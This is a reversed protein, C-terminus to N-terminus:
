STANANNRRRVDINLGPNITPGFLSATEMDQSAPVQPNFSTDATYDGPRDMDVYPAQKARDHWAAEGKDTLVGPVAQFPSGRFPYDKGMTMNGFPDHEVGLLELADQLEQLGGGVAMGPPGPQQAGRFGGELYDASQQTGGYDDDAYGRFGAMQHPQVRRAAGPFLTERPQPDFADRAFNQGKKEGKPIYELSRLGTPGMAGTETWKGGAVNPLNAFTSKPGYFDLPDGSDGERIEYKGTAENFVTVPEAIRPEPFNVGPRTLHAGPRVLAPDIASPGMAFPMGGGYYSTGPQVFAGPLALPQAAREQLIAGYTELNQLAKAMSAEADLGAAAGMATSGYPQLKENGGRRGGMWNSVANTGMLGLGIIDEIDM